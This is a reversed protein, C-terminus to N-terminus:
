AFAPNPFPIHPYSSTTQLRAFIASLLSHPWSHMLADVTQSDFEINQIRSAPDLLSKARPNGEAGKRELSYPNNFDSNM